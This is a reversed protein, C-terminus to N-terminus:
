SQLEVNDPNGYVIMVAFMTVNATNKLTLKYTGDTFVVSTAGSPNKTESVVGEGTCYGHTHSRQTSNTGTTFITFACTGSFIFAKTGNNASVTVPIIRISGLGLADLWALRDSIEVKANGSNDMLLSVINNYNVGGVSRNAGFYAGYKGDMNLQGGIAAMKATNKDMVIISEGRYNYEFPTTADISKIHTAIIANNGNINLSGTMTDGSKKVKGNVTTTLADIENQLHGAADQDLQGQINAFWDEFDQQYDAMWGNFQTAIQDFDIQDVAGAVYGCVSSDMRTDTIDEARIGTVGVGVLIQAIVLEYITASRTPPTAAPTASPTGKVVELTICRNTDDRRLVITDIRDYAGSPTDITMTNATAWYAPKGNLFAFGSAVNVTLDPTAQATVQLSGQFVGPAFFPKMWTEFSDANYTRDNNQSNFFYGYDKAYVSM